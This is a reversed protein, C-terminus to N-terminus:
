HEESCGVRQWHPLLLGLSHLLNEQLSLVSRSILEQHALDPDSNDLDRESWFKAHILDILALVPSVLIFSLAFMHMEPKNKNKDPHYKIVMKRYAHGVQSDTCNLELKLVSFYNPENDINHEASM